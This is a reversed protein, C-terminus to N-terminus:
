NLKFAYGLGLNPFRQLSTEVLLSHRNFNLAAGVGQYSRLTSAMRPDIDYLITAIPLGNTMEPKQTRVGAFIYTSFHDNFNWLFDARANLGKFHAISENQIGEEDIYLFTAKLDYWGMSFATQFTKGPFLFRAAYEYSLGTINNQHMAIPIEVRALASIKIPIGKKKFEYTEPLNECNEYAELFQQLTSFKLELNDPVRIKECDSVLDALIELYEHKGIDSLCLFHFNGNQDKIYLPRAQDNVLEYLSLKGKYLRHLFRKETVKAKSLEVSEFHDGDFFTFSKIEDPGLFNTKAKKSTKFQIGLGLKSYVESKILGESIKNDFTEIKGEVFSWQAYLTPSYSFLLLTFLTLIYTKM